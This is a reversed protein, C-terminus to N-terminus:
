YCLSKLESHYPYDELATAILSQVNLTAGGGGLFLKRLAQRWQSQGSGTLVIASPDGGSREWIEEQIPGQPYLIPLIIQLQQKPDDEATNATTRSKRISPEACYALCIDETLEHTSLVPTQTANEATVRSRVHTFLDFLRVYGEADHGAAGRLGGVFHKTFLSVSDGPMIHSTQTSHSSSMVVSGGDTGFAEARIGGIPGNLDATNPVSKAAPLGGSHCADLVILKRNANLKSWAMRFDEASLAGSQVSSYNYCCLGTDRSSNEMYGHGSFYMMIPVEPGLAQWEDLHQLIADRTASEDRLIKVHDRHYGCKEANLLTREILMGDEAVQDGLNFKSNAYKSVTM